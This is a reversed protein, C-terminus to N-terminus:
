PLAIQNSNKLYGIYTSVMIVKNRMDKTLLHDKVSLMIERFDASSIFGTSDKDRKKFAEVGYEEHFDHLFQSFEPYTVLRKKDKGFYLQVFSSGMDFPLKKYLSTKKM